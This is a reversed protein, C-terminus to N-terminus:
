PILFKYMQESTRGQVSQRWIQYIPQGTSRILRGLNSGGWQSSIDGNVCHQAIASGTIIILDSTLGNDDRNFTFVKNENLISVTFVNQRNVTPLDTRRSNSVKSLTLVKYDIAPFYRFVYIIANVM